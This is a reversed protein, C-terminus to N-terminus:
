HLVRRLGRHILVSYKLFYARMNLDIVFFQTIQIRTTVSEAAAKAIRTEANAIDGSIARWTRALCGTTAEAASTLTTLTLTNFGKVSVFHWPPNPQVTAIM